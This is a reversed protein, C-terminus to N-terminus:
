DGSYKILLALSKGSCSPPFLHGRVRGSYELGAPDPHTLFGYSDEDGDIRIHQLPATAAPTYGAAM